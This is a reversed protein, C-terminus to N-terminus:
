INCPNTGQHICFVFIEQKPLLEVAKLDSSFDLLSILATDFVSGFSIEDM